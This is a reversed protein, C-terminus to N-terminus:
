QAQLVPIQQSPTYKTSDLSIKSLLIPYDNTPPPPPPTEGGRLNIMENYSLDKFQGKLGNNKLSIFSTSKM